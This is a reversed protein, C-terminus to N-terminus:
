GLGRMATGTVSLVKSNEFLSVYFNMAEEANGDFWLFPTIKQTEV